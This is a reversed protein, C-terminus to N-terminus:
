MLRLMTLLEDETANPYQERLEDLMLEKMPSLASSKAGSSSAANAKASLLRDMEEVSPLKSKDLKMPEDPDDPDYPCM